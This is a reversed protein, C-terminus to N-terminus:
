NAWEFVSYVYSICSGPINRGTHPRDPFNVPTALNGTGDGLLLSFNDNSQSCTVVDLNGDEDFDGVAVDIPNTASPFNRKNGGAFAGTGANLLLTVQQNALSNFNCSVFDTRGDNNFDGKALEQPTQPITIIPLKQFSVQAISCISIALTTVLLLSTTAHPQPM